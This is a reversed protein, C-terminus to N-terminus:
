LMKQWQAIASLAELPTSRDVRFNRILIELEELPSFLGGGHQAPKAHSSFDAPPLAAFALTERDGQMTALIQRAREIVVAPVGALQAVHIGYSNGSPGDKIRRLFVVSDGEDLVEMSKNALGAIPLQTLEHFHTAFLSRCGLSSLMYELVARAISLGDHTGTGRGVEDMIILSKASALRLIRATEHMEVLFTSEGGALNDSAGVRCFVRDVVGISASQAPVFCGMHAMLVILATQRLYTSKGAMNPGTLLITTVKPDAASLVTDNPIFPTDELCAEVVPHRGERIDLEDNEHLVPRCYSRLTSVYAFNACVDLRACAQAMESISACFIKSRERLAFFLEKERLLIKSEANTIRDELQMLKETTYREGHLTSHKRIFHAPVQSSQLRTVEMFYGIIKNEKIKLASIGSRQREEDLYADLVGQGNQALNRLADLESDFGVRIVSGDSVLFPPEDVLCSKIEQVAAVCVRSSEAPWFQHPAVGDFVLQLKLLADCSDALAVLDRPSARDLVIRACLRDIDRVAGLINRVGTLVDQKRYLYQVIDLRSEIERINRQPELIWRKLLRVGMATKTQNLAWLLSFSSEGDRLNRMLELNRICAEDLGVLADDQGTQLSRVHGLPHRLAEKAYHLLASLPHLGPHHDDIGFAKLGITGAVRSLERSAFNADYLWDAYRNVLVGPHQALVEALDRCSELLSEQVIMERPMRRAFEQNLKERIDAVPCISVGLDGTSIDAYAIGVMGAAVQSVSVLFNNASGELFADDLITGPSIVQVVSREVIGKGKGPLSTQECIAIKKGHALLKTIYNQSAHYPIGCMPVTQRQTLTLGLIKSAEIADQRFMEYFDGLRFFVFADRHQAKIQEYQQMM